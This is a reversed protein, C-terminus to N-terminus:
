VNLKKLYDFSEKMSEFVPPKTKDQDLFAYKVGQRKAQKLLEPWAISGTGLETFHEAVAGMAFGTPAGVTRDKMHFLVLRDAYRKLMAAPDQGAQTLWYVDFELKVLHPDTKSMLTNWGTVGGDLPKFEYCHNHFAFTMGADKALKGWRNFDGAAKTFGATSSWQEQPIMPCVMYEIGLDHAYAIKEELGAYDFHASVLGLGSDAVIKKLEGAPQNYVVPYLEIQTFGVQHITKLVGALDKPAQERVMFLQVGYTLHEVPAALAFRPLSVTCGAAAALASLRLLERRSPNPQM